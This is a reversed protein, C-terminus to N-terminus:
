AAMGGVQGPDLTSSRRIRLGGSGTASATQHKEVLEDYRALDVRAFSQVLAPDFQTGANDALEEMVRERAMASRYTRNSSMADFADVLGIIRAMLPIDEGKLNRPYGRGDFREHHFLVGPLLDEFHPIDKLIQYGIEPHLRIQAFEAETLRGTKCLVAEPVGIKGVDHVVGALRIREVSEDDLGHAKALAAALEAVRESHGCTYPDKADISSTLAELTGIFMLQQDDYLISNDLLIALYAAAAELLKIDTSSVQPDEGRKNGAFLAAVVQGDRAVPHILLQSSGFGIPECLEPPVVRVDVPTLDELFRSTQSELRSSDCPADGSLYLRGAMSRALRRDPTFKVAIWQFPLTKQLEDCALAVFRKPQAVQNMARGLKQLLTIEEYSEALKRSFDAILAQDRSIADLDAQSWSLVRAMRDVIERSFVARGAFDAQVADIPLAAQHCIERVLASTLFEPTFLAAVLMGRRRKRHPEVVPILWFGEAVQHPLPTECAQWEALLSAVRQEVPASRLWRGFAGPDTPGTLRSGDADFRWTAIGLARCREEVQAQPTTSDLHSSDHTM